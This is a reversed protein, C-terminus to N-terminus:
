QAGYRERSQEEENSQIKATLLFKDKKVHPPLSIRLPTWFILSPVVRPGPKANQRAFESEVFDRNYIITAGGGQVYKLMGLNQLTSTIDEARISTKKMIDLVSIGEGEPLERLIGLLIWSWFSRYSLLGLDSLPKEPHGAKQEIKSLEYSFQILFRGYGKRQHCPLALICALNYGVESFKEKSYYGVIHHGHEDSETMVYFMFLDVDHYLTKHDLFMKALYCLNQCYHKEKAGDIEWMGIGDHGRYIEDGPPARHRCKACHNLLEPRTRFFKLCFECFHLVDIFSEPWYEKPIPSFYWTEMRYKGLEIVNVNKMKTIQEHEHIAEANMGDTSHEPEVFSIEITGDAKRKRGRFITGAEDVEEENEIDASGHGHGDSATAKRAAASHVGSAAEGKGGGGGGSGNSSEINSENGTSAAAAAAAAAAAEKVKATERKRKEENDGEADYRIKDHTLWSDMRRNFDLWHVYYRFIGTEANTTPNRVAVRELVSAKRESGDRYVGIVRTGSRLNDPGSEGEKDREAEKNFKSAQSKKL